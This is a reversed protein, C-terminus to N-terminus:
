KRSAELVTPELEIKFSDAITDNFNALAALLIIQALEDDNVGQDRVSDYDEAILEKPTFACKLAFRIIAQLRKPSVSDLDKSLSEITEEDVGLTRCHLENLTSCYTCNRANAVSYLIIPVISQPLTIHRNFARVTQIYIDLCSISASVGKASNPVTPSDTEQQIERYRQALEPDADEPEIVPFGSIDLYKM